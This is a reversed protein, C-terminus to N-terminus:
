YKRGPKIRRRLLVSFIILGIVAAVSALVWPGHRKIMRMHTAHSFLRVPDYGDPVPLVGAYAKYAAYEELMEAFLDPREEALDHTEGPDLAINYLYWRGDGKPPRNRMLKYDGRFLAAHGLAEMGVADYPGYVADAEGTLVPRLSRGDFTQLPRGNAQTPPTIGTLEILTPTVDTVFSFAHTIGHNVGPGAVVLPVRLGGEGAYFKFFAGPSAAASAFEPGMFVFSGKEGLTDYHRHYGVLKMWPKFLRHDTPRNPEPGNDSLVMFITNDYEGIERLYNVLRGIHYDMAEMMGANVAMSKALMAQEKASHSGWETLGDPMPGLQASEPILGLEKVRQFRADRIADWGHDYVGAYRETFERPAQVPMHVALFGIYAFFPSDNGMDANLYDIMRDVLFESSYFDDPLSAEHAGEFWPARDYYPLYPRDQWNDAGSADLIFSRDFGRAIPLTDPTHGLHWKGTIYTRYGNAGLMEALTVVENNLRGLYAHHGDHEIPQTEPLNGVGARHSYVGTMLMARTPACVPSVHFNSFIKGRQALADIHPTNIESGYAGFDSFGADDVVLVVVNPQQAASLGPFGYFLLAVLFAIVCPLRHNM